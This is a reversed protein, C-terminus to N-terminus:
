VHEPCTMPREGDIRILLEDIRMVLLNIKCDKALMKIADTYYVTGHGSSFMYESKAISSM